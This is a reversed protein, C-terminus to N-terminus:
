CQLFKSAFILQLGELFETLGDGCTAFQQAELLAINRGLRADRGFGQRAKFAAPGRLKARAFQQRHQSHQLGFQVDHRL